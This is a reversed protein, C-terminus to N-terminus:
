RLAAATRTLTAQCGAKGSEAQAIFGDMKGGDIDASANNQEM